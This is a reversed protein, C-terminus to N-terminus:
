HTNRPLVLTQSSEPVIYARDRLYSLQSGFQKTLCFGVSLPENSDQGRFAAHPGRTPRQTSSNVGCTRDESPVPWNIKISHRSTGSFQPILCSPMKTSTLQTQPWIYIGKPRRSLLKHYIQTDKSLRSHGKGRLFNRTMRRSEAWVDGKQSM